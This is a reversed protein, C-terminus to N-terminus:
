TETICNWTYKVLLQKCAWDSPRQIELQVQEAECYFFQGYTNADLKVSKVMMRPFPRHWKLLNGDKPLVKFQKSASCQGMLM